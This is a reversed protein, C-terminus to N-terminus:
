AGSSVMHGAPRPTRRALLNACEIYCDLATVLDGVLRPRALELAVDRRSFSAKAGDLVGSAAQAKFYTIWAVDPTKNLRFRITLRGDGQEFRPASIRQIAVM